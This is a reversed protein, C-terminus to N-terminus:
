AGNVILANVQVFTHQGVFGNQLYSADLISFLPDESCHTNYKILMFILLGLILNKSHGIKKTLFIM